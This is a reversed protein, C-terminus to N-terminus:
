GDSKGTGRGPRGGGPKAPLSLAFKLARTVWAELDVESSFGEPDVDVFGTLPRGPIDMKRAHPRALAEEYGAPGVRV